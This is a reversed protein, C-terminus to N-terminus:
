QLIPLTITNMPLMIPIGMYINWIIIMIKTYLIVNFDYASIGSKVVTKIQIQYGQLPLTKLTETLKHPDAGLGLLAAVSMDGSIGSSCEMYLGKKM